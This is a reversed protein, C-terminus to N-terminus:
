RVRVCVRVCACVYMCMRPLHLLDSVRDQFFAMDLDLEKRATALTAEGHAKVEADGDAMEKRLHCLDEERQQADETIYFQLAHKDDELLAHFNELETTLQDALGMIAVQGEDQTAHVMEELSQQVEAVAAERETRLAHLSLEGKEEVRTVEEGMKKDKTLMQERVDETQAHLVRRTKTIDESLKEDLNTIKTTLEGQGADGRILRSVGKRGNERVL